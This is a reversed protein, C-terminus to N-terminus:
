SITSSDRLLSSAIHFMIGIRQESSGATDSFHTVNGSRPAPPPDAGGGLDDQLNRLESPSPRLSSSRPLVLILLTKASGQFYGRFTLSHADNASGGM